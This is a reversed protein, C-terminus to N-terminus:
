KEFFLHSFWYRPKLDVSVLFKFHNKVPTEIAIQFVQSYTIQYSESRKGM